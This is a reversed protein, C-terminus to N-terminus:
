TQVLGLRLPACTFRVEYDVVTLIGQSWAVVSVLRRKEKWRRKARALDNQVNLQTDCLVFFVCQHVFGLWLPPM